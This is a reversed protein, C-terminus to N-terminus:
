DINISNDSEESELMDLEAQLALKRATVTAKHKSSKSAHKELSTGPLRSLLQRDEHSLSHDHKLSALAKRMNHNQEQLSPDQKQKNQKENLQRLPYQEMRDWALKYVPGNKDVMNVAEKADDIGDIEAQAAIDKAEKEPDDNTSPLIKKFKPLTTIVGIQDFGLGKKLARQVQNIRHETDQTSTDEDDLNKADKKPSLNDIDHQNGDSGIPAVLGSLPVPLGANFRRVSMGQYGRYPTMGLKIGNGTAGPYDKGSITRFAEDYALKEQEEMNPTPPAVKDETPPWRGWGGVGQVGIRSLPLMLKYFQANFYKDTPLAGDWGLIAKPDFVPATAMLPATPFIAAMASMPNIPVAPPAPAMAATAVIPELANAVYASAALLLCYVALM